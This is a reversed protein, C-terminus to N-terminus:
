RGGAAALGALAEAVRRGARLCFAGQGAQDGVLSDAEEWLERELPDLRSRIAGLAGPDSEALDRLAFAARALEPRGLEPPVAGPFVPVYVSACPSGLAVWARWPAAPEGSLEAIMSATTAMYGRAHMCLSVGTGDPLALAPPPAPGGQGEASGAGHSRLLRALDEPSPLRGSAAGTALFARSAQLRVDAHGTPAAPDRWRDFDEGPAVDPSARTWGARQTIRNSIAAAGAVPQAAWTRGATELVWAQRPDAILFSSSYPEQHVADAVGGQGHRELLSCIVELAATATSARELGLRVLDMGILGPPERYPDVVTYVKENGVAVGHQNVGHEAGWLWEPRSLLTACAGEDAIELYQTRLRGGPPRPGHHEVLQVESVPRDSNKAFVARGGALACLTDCV